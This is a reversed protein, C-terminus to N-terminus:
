RGCPRADALMAIHERVENALWAVSHGGLRVRKPFKGAAELRLLTSNSLKIGLKPLDGRTLLLANQLPATMDFGGHDQQRCRLIGIWRLPAM